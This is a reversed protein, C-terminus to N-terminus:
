NQIFVKHGYKRLDGEKRRSNFAWNCLECLQGNYDSAPKNWKIISVPYDHRIYRGCNKGYPARDIGCNAKSKTM